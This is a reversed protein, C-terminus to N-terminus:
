SQSTPLSIHPWEKKRVFAQAFPRGNTLCPGSLVLFTLCKIQSCLASRPALYSVQMKFLFLSGNGGVLYPLANTDKSRPSFFLAGVGPVLLLQGMERAGHRRRTKLLCGGWPYCCGGGCLQAGSSLSEWLLVRPPCWM